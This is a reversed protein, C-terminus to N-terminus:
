EGSLEEVSGEKGFLGHAIRLVFELAITFGLYYLLIDWFDPITWFLAISSEVSFYSVDVLFIGLLAFPLMKALDKSLDENYYATIRISSVIAIAIMLTTEVANNKSLFLLLATLVSFWFFVIIPLFFLYEFIYLFLAVLNHIVPHPSVNYKDLHLKFIDKKSVFRYFHFIFLAYVVIGAIFQALPKIIQVMQTWEIQAM